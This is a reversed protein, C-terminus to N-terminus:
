NGNNNKNDMKKVEKKMTRIIGVCSIFFAIAITTLFLWPKTGLERDLAKGIFVAAILPAAIWISAKTFVIISDRWWAKKVPENEM